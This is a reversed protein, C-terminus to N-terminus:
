TATEPEDPFYHKLAENRANLYNEENGGIVYAVLLSYMTYNLASSAASGRTEPFEIMLSQTLGLYIPLLESRFDDHSPTLFITLLFKIGARHTKFQEFVYDLHERYGKDARKADQEVTQLFTDVFQKLCLIVLDRVTGYYKVVLAKSVGAGNAIKELTAGDYGYHCFVRMASQMIEERKNKRTM